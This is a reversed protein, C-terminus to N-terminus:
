KAGIIDFVSTTTQTHGTITQQIAQMPARGKLLIERFEEEPDSMYVIAGGVGLYCLKETCVITRIVVSLDATGNCGIFGLAGSYVGRPMGEISELIQMSRMKPAGTMSGAPFAHRICDTVRLESRLRGRVTSVLTHLTAYTEVDMLKPVAVSGTECVKGLDNRILDVIMLNEAFDKQSSKLHAILKADEEPTAGRGITGKIPKIEVVGDRFVKMFREPSSSVISQVSDLRIFAGNPAPNLRRLNLYLLLPDPTTTTFLHTTLCLEYSEGDKIQSLCEHIDSLYQSKPRDLEFTVRKNSDKDVLVTHASDTAQGRNLISKIDVLRATTLTDTMASMWNETSIDDSGDTREVAVLYISSDSHDVVVFRDAFIFFLSPLSHIAEKLQSRTSDCPLPSYGSSFKTPTVYAPVSGQARMVTEKHMEYNLYGVLGGQLDFPLEDITDIARQDLITQLKDFASENVSLVQTICSGDSNRTTWTRTDQDFQIVHSHPGKANGMFSYHHSDNQLKASDLWFCSDEPNLDQYLTVFIQEASAECSPLHRYNLRYLRQSSSPMQVNNDLVTDNVTVTSAATAADTNIALHTDPDSSSPSTYRHPLVTCRHGLPKESEQHMSPPLPTPTHQYHSTCLSYFNSLIQKGHETCISEPHFQVSWIPKTKHKLGMNITVEHGDTADVCWATEVLTNPMTERNTVLSHYRVAKFPSPLGEFLDSGVHEVDSLLGHTPRPAHIVDGGEVYALGQHGLCVGLVPVTANRLIADCVGFDAANDPRGPGPSIVICDVDM